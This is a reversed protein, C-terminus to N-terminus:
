AIVNNRVLLPVLSQFLKRIPFSPVSDQGAKLHLKIPKHLYNYSLTKWLGRLQLSPEHM